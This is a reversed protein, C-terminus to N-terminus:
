LLVQRSGLWAGSPRSRQRAQAASRTQTERTLGKLEEQGCFAGTPCPRKLIHAVCKQQELNSFIKADYSVFRDSVLVGAFNAPIVELVEVSRHQARIQYVISSNTKFAMLYATAGNVRWSTDDTNVVSSTQVNARLTQYKRNILGADNAGRKLAQPGLGDAIGGTLHTTPILVPATTLALFIGFDYQLAHGAALARPGLRHATAGRQDSTISSHLGRFQQECTPCTNVSVRYETISPKIEPLDTVYAFETKFPNLM